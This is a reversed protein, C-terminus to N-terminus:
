LAKGLYRVDIKTGDPYVDIDTKIHENFGKHKYIEYNRIETPEVALTVKEYGRKKLDEIMYDFLKSFYGQGEYEKVTRFAFLYAIKGEEVIGEPDNFDESCIRAYTECITKGDLDGYYAIIRGLEANNVEKEKWVMWNDRQESNVEIWFDFQKAIEEPTAVKCIYNEM